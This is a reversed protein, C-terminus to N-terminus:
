AKWDFYKKANGKEEELAEQWGVVVSNIQDGYYHKSNPVFRLHGGQVTWRV